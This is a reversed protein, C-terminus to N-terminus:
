QKMFIEHRDLLEEFKVILKKKEALVFVKEELSAGDDFSYGSKPEHDQGYEWIDYYIKSMEDLNAERKDDEKSM